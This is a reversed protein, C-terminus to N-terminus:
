QELVLTKVEVWEGVAEGKQITTTRAPRQHYDSTGPKARLPQQVRATDTHQAPVVLEQPLKCVTELIPALTPKLNLGKM